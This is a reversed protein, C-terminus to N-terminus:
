KLIFLTTALGTTVIGLFSVWKKARREKRIEKDKITLQKQLINRQDTQNSIIADKSSVINKLDSIQGNLNAIMGEKIAIRAKLTDTQNLLLDRQAEFDKSKYAAALIKLADKEPIPIVKSTTSPQSLAIQTVLCLM